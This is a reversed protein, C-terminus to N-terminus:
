KGTFLVAAIGVALVIAWGVIERSTMRKALLPDLFRPNGTARALRQSEPDIEGPENGRWLRFIVYALTGVVLLFFTGIMVATTTEM